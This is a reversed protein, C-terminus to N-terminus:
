NLRTGTITDAGRLAIALLAATTGVEAHHLVTTAPVDVGTFVFVTQGGVVYHAATVTGSLPEFGQNFTFGSGSFRTFNSGNDYYLAITPSVHAFDYDFLTEARLLNFNLAVSSGGRVLAM